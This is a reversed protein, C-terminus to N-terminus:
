KKLKKSSPQGAPPMTKSNLQATAATNLRKIYLSGGVAVAGLGAYVWGFISFIKNSNQAIDRVLSQLKDTLAPNESKALINPLADTAAKNTIFVAILIGIGVILLIIGVRRIGQSLSPSLFVIGTIVLLALVILLIKGNNLNQYVDPLSSGAFASQEPNEGSKFTSATLVPDSLFDKNNALEARVKDAALAPSVGRPLCAASFPDGFDTQGRPCAPLSAARAQAGAAVEDIFTAKAQTLDIRFEPLATEGKLWRYTSDIFNETSDEILQPPFAKKFAAQVVPNDPSIEGSSDENPNNTSDLFTDVASTYIGSEKLIKKVPEPDGAVGLVAFNLALLFLLLPLLPLLLALLIRKLIPM